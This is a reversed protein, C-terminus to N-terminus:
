TSPWYTSLGVAVCSLSDCSLRTTAPVSCPTKITSDSACSSGSSTISPPTTNPCSFMCAAIWAIFSSASSAPLGTQSQFGGALSSASMARTASSASASSRAAKPMRWFCARLERRFSIRLAVMALSSSSALAAPVSNPALWALSTNKLRSDFITRVWIRSPSGRISPRSVRVTRGILTRTPTSGRVWPEASNVRPSVWASTLTVSPVPRSSCIM